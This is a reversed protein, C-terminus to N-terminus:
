RGGVAGVVVEGGPGGGATVWWGPAAVREEAARGTRWRGGEGVSRVARM